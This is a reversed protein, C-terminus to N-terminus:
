HKEFTQSIKRSMGNEGMVFLLRYIKLSPGRREKETFLNIIEKLFSPTNINLFM